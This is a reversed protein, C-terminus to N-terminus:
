LSSIENEGKISFNVSTNFWIPVSKLIIIQLSPLISLVDSMNSAYERLNGISTEQVTIEEEEVGAKDLLDFYDIMKQVRDIHVLHDDLEIRMLKAIDEIEEKTVM